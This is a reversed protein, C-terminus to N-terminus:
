EIVQNRLRNIVQEVPEANDNLKFIDRHKWMFERYKTEQRYEKTFVELIHKLFELM